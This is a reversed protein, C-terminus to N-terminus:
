APTFKILKRAPTHHSIEACGLADDGAKCVVPQVEAWVVPTENYTLRTAVYNAHLSPIIKKEFQKISYVPCSYRHEFLSFIREWRYGFRLNEFLNKIDDQIPVSKQNVKEEM